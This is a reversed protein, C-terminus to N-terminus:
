SWLSDAQVATQGVPFGGPQQGTEGAPELTVLFRDQDALTVRAVRADLHHRGESGPELDGLATWQGQEDDALWARYSWGDFAPLGELTGSATVAVEVAGIQALSVGGRAQGVVPELSAELPVTEGGSTPLPQARLDVPEASGHVLTLRLEDFADGDVADVTRLEHGGGTAELTGLAHVREGDVLQAGYRARDLEPLGEIRVDIETEPDCTDQAAQCFPSGSGERVTYTGSLDASVNAPRVEHPFPGTNAEVVALGFVVLGITLGGAVLLFRDKTSSLGVVTGTPTPAEPM